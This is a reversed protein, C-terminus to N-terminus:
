NIIEEYIDIYENAITAPQWFNEMWRRSNFGIENLNIAGSKILNELVSELDNATAKIFPHNPAGSSKIMVSAVGDDIGSITPIGMAVGELASRHYSGTKVEDIFINCLSKRELCEILPVNIIIDVEVEPYKEQLSKLIPITEAYGKDDWKNIPNLVSPSYGIRINKNNYKPIFVTNYLDIPNRVIICDNYEPLTAHYQAIVLKPLNTNLNVRFPESHYQIVSNKFKVSPKNHLHLVNTEKSLNVGSYSYGFVYAQHNTYKNIVDCIAEPAMAIPTEKYHAIIM